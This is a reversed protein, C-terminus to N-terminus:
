KEIDLYCQDFSIHMNKTPGSDGNKGKNNM